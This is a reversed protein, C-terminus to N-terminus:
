RDEGALMEELRAQADALGQDIEKDGAIIQGMEDGLISYFDSWEEMIPRYVGSELADCVAEYQPFEELVAPDKLSSYRCPVGGAEVTGRQVEADMLYSLLEAAMEKNQSNEPIGITWIGYVNANYAPDADGAKGTLAIYDASSNKTPTYWGPWGIGMAAARNAVAMILDEKGAAEGTAILELYFEMAQHFEETDVTPQNEEDVVWGGFSLLIPLFDVVINNATDGRYMFGQNHGEKTKQCVALIDELSDMEEPQYGADEVLAKNYLLVTVNGYYPALYVDGESYCVETTAPIIDEDLEYQLDSLNALVGEATYQAMWSGDVMCLDYAGIENAADSLVMSHLDDESLELVECFIGHRQEFEELCSIIVDSYIGSRLALTITPLNETNERKKDGAGCASMSFLLATVLVISCAKKLIRKKMM